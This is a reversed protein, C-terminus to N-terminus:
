PLTRGRGVRGASGRACEAVAQRRAPLGTPVFDRRDGDRCPRFVRAALWLFFRRRAPERRGSLCPRVTIPRCWVTGDPGRSTGLVTGCGRYRAARASGRA